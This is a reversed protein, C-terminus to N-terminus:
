DTGGRMKEGPDARQPHTGARTISDDRKARCPSGGNRRAAPAVGQRDHGDLELDGGDLHDGIGRAEALAVQGDEGVSSGLGM